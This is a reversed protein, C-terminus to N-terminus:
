KKSNSSKNNLRELFSTTIVYKLELFNEKELITLIKNFETSNIVPKIGCIKYWVDENNTIWKVLKKEKASMENETM